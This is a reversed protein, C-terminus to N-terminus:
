RSQVLKPAEVAAVKWSAMWASSSSVATHITSRRELGPPSLREVAAVEARNMPPPMM